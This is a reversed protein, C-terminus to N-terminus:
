TAVGARGRILDVAREAVAQVTGHTHGRPLSPLVSADVIRLGELGHVRLEPDVVGNGAGGIRCTAVPHYLTHAYRRVGSAIEEDTQLHAGPRREEGRHAAFAPQDLIRRCRRVGEVMVRMDHGDPDSLYNPDIVPAAVPDASALRVTGSSKPRLLVIGATVAHQDPTGKGEDEFPVPAFILESDPAPLSPDSRYFAAVEGVNSTLLGKRRFLFKLLEKPHEAAYLSTPTPTNHTTTLVLHDQLHSGVHPNDLVVDIGVDQLHEAPGIGSLMLVQPTNLAGACLVIERRSRATRPAGGADRYAVGIARRDDFTVREVHIGTRVELNARGKAPKLYADAATRRLGRSQALPTIGVGDPEDGTLAKTVPLGDQQAAEYMARSLPNLDQPRVPALADHARRRYPALQEPGWGEAGEAVWDEQDQRHGPIQMMANMASSGGLVKGRPTYIRRGDLGAQPETSYNWDIESEFLKGFAAPIRIEKKRAPGGAELLLVRTGPDESLRAAVVCGASGAGVVIIDFDDM